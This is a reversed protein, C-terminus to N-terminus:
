ESEDSRHKVVVIVADGERSAAVEALPDVVRQERKDLGTLDTSEVGRPKAYTFLVSTEPRHVRRTSSAVM